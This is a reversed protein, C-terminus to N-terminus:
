QIKRGRTGYFILVAPVVTFFGGLGVLLILAVAQNPGPPRRFDRQATRQANDFGVVVDLGM